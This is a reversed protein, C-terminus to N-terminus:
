RIMKWVIAPIGIAMITCSGAYLRYHFLDRWRVFYERTMYAREGVITMFLRVWFPKLFIM